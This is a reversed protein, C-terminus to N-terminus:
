SVPKASFTLIISTGKGIESEARVNGGCGEMICKVIYLGLGSEGDNASREQSAKYFREFIRPLHKPDIGCGTDTVTVTASSETNNATMTICGGSVTHRVANFIINDFVSWIKQPDASIEFDDGVNVEFTIGHDEMYTDYKEKVQALLDLISVWGVTYINRDTEIRSV